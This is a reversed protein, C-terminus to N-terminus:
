SLSCLFLGNVHLHANSQIDNFIFAMKMSIGMKHLVYYYSGLLWFLYFGSSRRGTIIVYVIIERTNDAVNCAHGKFAVFELSIHYLLVAARETIENVEM